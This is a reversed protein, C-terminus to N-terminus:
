YCAVQWGSFCAMARTLPCSWRLFTPTVTAVLTPIETPTETPTQSPMMTPISSRSSQGSPLSGNHLTPSHTPTTSPMTTPSTSPRVTPVETPTFTPSSSPSVSYHFPFTANTPVVSPLTSPVRTPSATPVFTPTRTQHLSPADSTIGFRCPISRAQACLPSQQITIASCQPVASATLEGCVACLPSCCGLVGGSDPRAGISQCWAASYPNSRTAFFLPAATPQPDPTPQLSPTTTRPQSPM